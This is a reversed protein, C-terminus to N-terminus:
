NCGEKFTKLSYLPFIKRDTELTWTWKYTQSARSCRSNVLIPIPLLSFLSPANKAQEVCVTIRSGVFATPQFSCSYALLQHPGWIVARFEPCEAAARPCALIRLFPQFWWLVLEGGTKGTEVIKDMAHKCVLHSESSDGTAGSSLFDDVLCLSTKHQYEFQQCLGIYVEPSPLWFWLDRFIMTKRLFCGSLLPQFLIAACGEGLRWHVWCPAHKQGVHFISELVWFELITFVLCDKKKKKLFSSSDLTWVM